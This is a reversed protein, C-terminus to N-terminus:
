DILNGDDDLRGEDYEQSARSQHHESIEDRSFGAERLEQYEADRLEQQRHYTARQRRRREAEADAARDAPSQYDDGEHRMRATERRDDPRPETGSGQGSQTTQGDWPRPRGRADPMQVTSQALEQGLSDDLMRACAPCPAMLNGSDDTTTITGGEVRRRMEARIEDDSADRHAPDNRIRQELDSLAAAEACPGSARSTDSQVNGDHDVFQTASDISGQTV